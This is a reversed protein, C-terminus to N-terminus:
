NRFIDRYRLSRKHWNHARSNRQRWELYNSLNDRYKCRCRCGLRGYNNSERPNRKFKSSLRLFGMQPLFTIVQKTASLTGKGVSNQADVAVNYPTNPQLIAGDGGAGIVTSTSTGAPNNEADFVLTKQLDGDIDIEGGRSWYVNFNTITTGGNDPVRWNVTIQMRDPGPIVDGLVVQDPVTQPIGSLTARATGARNFVEVEVVYSIDSSLLEGRIRNIRYQRQYKDLSVSDFNNGLTGDTSNNWYVRYGEIEGGPMAPPLWTVLFENTGPTLQARPASPSIVDSTRATISSLDSEFNDDNLGSLAIEYDTELRLNEVTYSNSSPGLTLETVDFDSETAASSGTTRVYLKFRSVEQATGPQTFPRNWNISVSDYGVEGKTIAPGPFAALPIATVTTAMGVAGNAAIGAVTVTYEAGIRLNQNERDEGLRYEQFPDSPDFSNIVTISSLTSEANDTLRWTIRWSSVALNEGTLGTVQVPINSDIQNGNGLRGGIM